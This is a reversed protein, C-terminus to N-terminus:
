ARYNISRFREKQGWRKVHVNVHRAATVVAKRRRPISTSVACSSPDASKSSAREQLPRRFEGANQDRWVDIQQGFSGTKEALMVFEGADNVCMLKPYCNSLHYRIKLDEGLCGRPFFPKSPDFIQWETLAEARM